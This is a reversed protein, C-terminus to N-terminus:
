IRLRLPDVRKTESTETLILKKEFSIKAKIFDVRSPIIFSLNSVAWGNAVLM